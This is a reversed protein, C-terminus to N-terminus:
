CALHPCGPLVREAPRRDRGRQFIWVIPVFWRTRMAVLALIALIVAALDGYAVDRAFVTGALRLSVVGPILFSMGIFRFGHLVLIPRLADALQRNKIAPWIYQAACVSWALVGFAVTLGYILPTPM